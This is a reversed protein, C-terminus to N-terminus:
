GTEAKALAVFTWVPGSVNAHVGAPVGQWLFLPVHREEDNWYNDFYPTGRSHLWGLWQRRQDEALAVKMAGFEFFPSLACPHCINHISDLFSNKEEEVQM